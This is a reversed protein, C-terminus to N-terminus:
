ENNKGQIVSLIGDMKDQAGKLEQKLVSSQIEMEEKEKKLSLAEKQKEFLDYKTKSLEEELEEIHRMQKEYVGMLLPEVEEKFQDKYTRNPTVPPEVPAPAVPPINPIAVEEVHAVAPEPKASKMVNEINKNRAQLEEFTPIEITKSLAEEKQVNVPESNLIDDATTTVASQVKLDSVLENVPAASEESYKRALTDAFNKSVLLKKPKRISVEEGSFKLDCKYKEDIPETSDRAILKMVEKIESWTQDSVIEKYSYIGNEYTIGTTYIKIMNNDNIEGYTYTIYDNMDSLKYKALIQAEERIGEENIVYFIVKNDM